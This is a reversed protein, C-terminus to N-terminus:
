RAFERSIGSSCRPDPKDQLNCKTQDGLNFAEEPVQDVAQFNVFDITENGRRHLSIDHIIRVPAPNESDSEDVWIWSKEFIQSWAYLSTSIGRLTTNEVFEGSKNYSASSLSLPDEHINPYPCECWFQCFREGASNLTLFYVRGDTSVKYDSVQIPFQGSLGSVALRAGAADYVGHASMGLQSTWQQPFVPVNATSSALRAVLFLATLLKMVTSELPSAARRSNM